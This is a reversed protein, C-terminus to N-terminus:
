VAKRHFSLAECSEPVTFLVWPAGGLPKNLFSLQAKVAQGDLENSCRSGELRKGNRARRMETLFRTRCHTHNRSANGTSAQVIVTIM